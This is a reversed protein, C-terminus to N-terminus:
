DEFRLDARRPAILPHLQALYTIAWMLYCCTLALAVSSRILVQDKGKPTLFWAAAAIIAVVFGVSVIHFFSM